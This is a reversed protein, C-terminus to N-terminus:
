SDIHMNLDDYKIKGRNCRPIRDLQIFRKPIMYVPLYNKLRNLERLDTSPGSAEVFAIIGTAGEYLKSQHLIVAADSIGDLSLIAHEVEGAEIRYGMFKLQRDKRGIFQYNGCPLLVALDGTKYIRENAGIADNFVFVADTKVQDNLYGKSLGLGALCLEGVEGINVPTNDEALLTVYTGECPIGIPIKEQPNKPVQEVRYCLSIGTAETPGYGNYFIKEPYENMWKLLYKTPFPEGAFIIQKLSRMRNKGIVNAKAMYLLLSSVGKWLTIEEKEVFDVLKKPFLTSEESAICLTGGAKLSCYIDFTSMDFHFPATGLIRDKENIQFYNVAWNIYNSINQHSIMVGKPKGTSGSTYLIYAIDSENNHYSPQHDRYKGTRSNISDWGFGAGDLNCEPDLQLIPTVSGLKDILQVTESRNRSDCVVATPSCDALIDQWRDLPAKCDIPVYIADAKLIGLIVVLVEVSRNLCFAVRDQRKVGCAILGNALRNSYLELDRYSLTTRGDTVAVNSQKECTALDLYQQVLLTKM